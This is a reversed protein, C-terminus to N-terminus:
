INRKMLEFTVQDIIQTVTCNMESAQKYLFSHYQQESTYGKWAMADSILKNLQGNTLHGIINHLTKNM